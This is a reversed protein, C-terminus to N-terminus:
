LIGRQALAEAVGEANDFCGTVFNAASPLTRVGLGRLATDIRRRGDAFASVSRQLFADDALAAVAAAEGARPVSFPLRIRNLVEAVDLPAYAWGIRLSALGYAKSFTRTVLVNPTDRAW